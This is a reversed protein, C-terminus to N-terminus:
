ARQGGHRLQEVLDLTRASAQAGLEELMEFCQDLARRAGARDDRALLTAVLLEYAGESWPEAALARTALDEPRDTDGSAL